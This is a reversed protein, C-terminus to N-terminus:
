RKGSREKSSAGRAPSKRATKDAASEKRRGDEIGALMTELDRVDALSLRGTEALHSMLPQASGGFLEVLEDIMRRHVARRTIVPEFVHANGIKKARRLAGKEELRYVITQVTTYAPRRDAPLQEQIERVSATGLSWLAQMLEMEFKTLKVTGQRAM